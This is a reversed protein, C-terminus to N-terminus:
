PIFRAGQQCLFNALYWDETLRLPQHYGLACTYTVASTAQQMQNNRRVYDYTVGSANGFAPWFTMFGYFNPIADIGQANDVGNIHFGEYTSWYNYSPDNAALNWFRRPANVDSKIPTVVGHIFVADSGSTATITKTAPDFNINTLESITKHRGPVPYQSLSVM